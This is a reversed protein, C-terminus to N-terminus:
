HFFTSASSRFTDGPPSLSAILNMGLNALASEAPILVSKSLVVTGIGKIRTQERHRKSSEQRKRVFANASSDFRDLAFQHSVTQHKTISGFFFAHVSQRPSFTHKQRAREPHSGTKMANAAFFFRALHKLTQKGNSVIEPEKRFFVIRSRLPLEPIKWLCKGVHGQDVGRKIQAAMRGRDFLPASVADFLSIFFILSEEESRERM